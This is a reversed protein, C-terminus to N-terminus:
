QPGESLDLAAILIQRMERIENAAQVLAAETEPDVDLVGTNALRALQNLNNALRSQGLKGLVQALKKHDKVPSRNRRRGSSRSADFLRSRVYAGLPMGAADQELQAREEFRLRLSFPPTRRKPTDQDSM